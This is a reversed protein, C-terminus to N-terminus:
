AELNGTDETHGAGPRPAQEATDGAPRADTATLRPTFPLGQERLSQLLFLRVASTLDLGLERFLRDAERALRADISLSTEPM